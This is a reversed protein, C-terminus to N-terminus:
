KTKAVFTGKITGPPNRPRKQCHHFNHGPHKCYSCFAANPCNKFGHGVNQQNCNSCKNHLVEYESLLGTNPACNVSMLNPANKQKPANKNSKQQSGKNAGEEQKAPQKNRQQAPKKDNAPKKENKPQKESVVKGGASSAGLAEIATRSKFVLQLLEQENTVPPADELESAVQDPMNTMLVIDAMQFILDINEAAFLEKAQSVVKMAFTTWEEGKVWKAFMLNQINARQSVVEATAFLGNVNEKFSNWDDGPLLPIIDKANGTSHDVASKAQAM